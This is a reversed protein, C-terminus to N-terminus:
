PRPPPPPPFSSSLLAPTCTLTRARARARTCVLGRWMARPGEEVVIERLAGFVGAGRAPGPSGARAAMVRTKILDFPHTAVSAASGAAVGSCLNVLTSLGLGSRKEELGDPCTCALEGGRPPGV